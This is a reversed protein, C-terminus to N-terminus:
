KKIGYLNILVREMKAMILCDGFVSIAERTRAFTVGHCIMRKSAGDKQRVFDKGNSKYFSVM